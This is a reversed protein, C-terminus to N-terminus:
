LVIWIEVEGLDIRRSVEEGGTGVHDKRENETIVDVHGEDRGSM